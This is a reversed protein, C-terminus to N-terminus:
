APRIAVRCACAPMCAHSDHLKVAAYGYGLWLPSRWGPLTPRRRGDIGFVDLAVRRRSARRSVASVKAM